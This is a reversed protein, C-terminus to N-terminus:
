AVSAGHHSARRSVITRWRGAFPDLTPLARADLLMGAPALWGINGRADDIQRGLFLAELSALSIGSAPGLVIGLLVHLATDVPTLARFRLFGGYDPVTDAIREPVTERRPPM